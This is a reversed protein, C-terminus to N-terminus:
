CPARRVILAPLTRLLLVLDSRFSWTSIYALDLEVMDGYSLANGGNVQWPGTIGPRVSHRQDAVADFEEPAVPLPRPGVLSMDGILVNFLQPLEDLSFRRLVSGIWTVRPDRALKFLLGDNVNLHAHADQLLDAGVVMSRFKWITFLKGRRGVRPQGYLIPGPESIWLALSVLALVPALLVMLVVAATVDFLRKGRMPGGSFDVRGLPLVGVDGIRHSLPQRSLGTLPVVLSFPIGSGAGRHVFEDYVSDDGGAAVLLVHDVDRRDILDLARKHPGEFSREAVRHDAGLSPSHVAVVRLGAEPFAPFRRLVRHVAAPPGSLLASRLGLGRRRAAALALWSITRVGVLVALALGLWRVRSVSTIGHLSLGWQLASIGGAAVCLRWAAWWVGQAEITTRNSYLGTAWAAVHFALVSLVVLSPGDTAATALVIAASDVAIAVGHRASDGHLMECLEIWRGAPVIPAARRVTPRTLAGADLMM